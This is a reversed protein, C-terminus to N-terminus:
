SEGSTSSLGNVLFAPSLVNEHGTSRWAADCVSSEIMRTEGNQLQMGSEEVKWAKHIHGRQKAPQM